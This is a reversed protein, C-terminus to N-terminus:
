KKMAWNYLASFKDFSLMYTEFNVRISAELEDIESDNMELYTGTVDSINRTLQPVVAHLDRILKPNDLPRIDILMFDDNYLLINGDNIMPNDYIEMQSYDPDSAFTVNDVVRGLFVFNDFDYVFLFFAICKGLKTPYNSIKKMGNVSFNELGAIYQMSQLYSPTKTVMRTRFDLRYPFKMLAMKPTNLQFYCLLLNAVFSLENARYQEDNKVVFKQGDGTTIFAVRDQWEIHHPIKTIANMEDIPSCAYLPIHNNKYLLFIGNCVDRFPTDDKFSLVTELFSGPKETM